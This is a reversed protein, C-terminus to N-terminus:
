KNDELKKRKIKRLMDNWDEYQYTPCKLYFELEQSLSIIFKHGAKDNDVCVYCPKKPYMDLYHHVVSKKCGAMSVFLTTKLFDTDDELCCYSLLDIATEFFCIRHISTGFKISFGYGLKSNTVVQKFRVKDLTGVMEAGVIENTKPDYFPFIANGHEKEQFLLKNKLLYQIYEKRIERSKSLYAFARHQDKNLEPMKFPGVKKKENVNTKTVINSTGLLDSVAEWFDLNYVDMVCDIATGGKEQNGNFWKYTCGRVYLGGYGRVKYRGRNDHKEVREGKRIFYEVLDVNRAQYMLREQEATYGM